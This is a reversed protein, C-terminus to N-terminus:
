KRKAHIFDGDRVFGQGVTIIDVEAGLGTLWIGDDEAKVLQIPVFKVQQDSDAHGESQIVTKVGLDGAENLALMAPSVKLAPQLDLNIEVESSMGASIEAGANPIEVEVSFTNTSSSSVSSIYRVDGEISLGNIFFVEAKQGKDIQGIHRESVNVEIVLPDLVVVKAVPDGRSVFDGVEVFLHEVIGDFPATVTTNKLILEANRVSARAEALSAEAQSFAVEGQLGKRRLEKAAKFEKMRVSYIAKAQSLRLDLDAMDLHAIPQDKKVRVGKRVLIDEIQAGVQAGLITKRDPATRGYLSITKHTPTSQFREVIVNALPVSLSQNDEKIEANDAHSPGSIIWLFLSLFLCFSIIWPRHIIYSSFRSAFKGM